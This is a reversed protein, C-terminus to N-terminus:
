IKHVILLKTQTKMTTITIKYTMSLRSFLKKINIGVSKENISINNLFQANFVLLLTVKPNLILPYSSNITIMIM